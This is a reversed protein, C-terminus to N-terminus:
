RDVPPLSDLGILRAVERANPTVLHPKLAVWLAPEHADVVVLPPRATGASCLADHVPGQLSGLGYDCVLLADTGVTAEASARALLALQDPSFRNGGGEDVRVLVQEDSVIRIKSITAVGDVAIVGSVDVGAAELLGLLRRGSEDQGVLGVLAVRAGLAALNM